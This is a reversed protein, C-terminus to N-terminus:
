KESWVVAWLFAESLGGSVLYTLFYPHRSVLLPIRSEMGVLSLQWMTHLSIDLSGAQAVVIEQM